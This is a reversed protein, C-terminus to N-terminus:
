SDAERKYFVFGNQENLRILDEYQDLKHEKDIKTIIYLDKDINGELLWDQDTYKENDPQKMRGYFYHTYSKYGKTIIYVDKDQLTKLFTIPANQSYMEIKGIFLFLGFNVLLGITIALSIFAKKIKDKKYLRLFFFIALMFFVGLLGEWGTWNVEANMNASAFPDSVKGQLWKINIGILPLVIFIGTIILSISVLMVKMWKKLSIEKKIMKYIVVSALYTIPFYAMSSYHVIKSKVVSFLIVIVWFLILMWLRMDKEHDAIIDLNKFARIAFISAPFTGLLLIVFHYGAFGKHGADPTSFLRWQYTIFTEVFWPGNILTEIGFWLAAVSSSFLVYLLFDPITIFWRFKKFIWYVFLTLCVLLFAVPGKTIIALSIFVGSVFLYSYKSHKAPLSLNNKKWNYRIFFYFGLFIFFNFWPDIIGSKFYFHPLLSGFYALAWIMGFTRGKLRCGIMYLTILTAIGCVANPFRAAYENVGFLEMSLAQLWFFLPPKEWFPQFNIHVRLYDQMILMERAAEAFNNEDWDFLNVGGLFPFFFILALGTLIFIHSRSPKM